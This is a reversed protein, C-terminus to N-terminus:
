NELGTRLVASSGDKELKFKSEFKKGDKVVSLEYDGAFGRFGAQGSANKILGESHWEKKFLGELRKLAPKKTMDFRMLAGHYRNEGRTMDGLAAHATYGDVLNWYVIGDMARHSFFLRYLNEILEAQVEEDEAENFFAPVTMETLQIPKGFRAFLDLIGTIYEPNYMTKALESEGERECFAHFQFGIEDIPADPDNKLIREIQMYYPNRNNRPLKLANWEENIMLRNEPFHKRATQFSWEVYDDDEYFPTAWASGEYLLTENTVEFTPIKSRYREAMAKFWRELAVRTEKATLKKAWEPYCYNLCHAKPELGAEKCFDLTADVPPRRYIYRSDKKFRLEGEEPEYAYWYCPLTALNFTETLTKRYLANKAETEFQDLMFVNTGFKYAHGTQRYELAFERLPEGNAALVFIEADGKRNRDTEAQTRKFFDRDERFYKLVDERASM